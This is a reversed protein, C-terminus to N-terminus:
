KRVFNRTFTGKETIIFVVYVGNSMRSLDIETHNANMRESYVVRGHVDYVYLDAQDFNSLTVNLLDHAPNPYLAVEEANEDQNGSLSNVPKALPVLYNNPSASTSASIRINDIYVDDNNDSADCMFRIKMGTPFVYSSELISVNAAYFVNNSFHTGSKYNGVTYWTTGNFYQVWFDEGTEMSVAIFEFEVDIQVYAPTHVDVGNTLYFSSAVGSNDQIDISAAGGSSYTGGTYLACDGGGDTWIGLGAEFDSFSLQVSSVPSAETTFTWVSCGM